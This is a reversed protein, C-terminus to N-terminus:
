IWVKWSDMLCARFYSLGCAEIPSLLSRENYCHRELHHASKKTTATKYETKFSM